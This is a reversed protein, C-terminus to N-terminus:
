GYMDTTTFSPSAGASLAKSNGFTQAMSNKWSLLQTLIADSAKEQSEPLGISHDFEEVIKLSVNELKSLGAAKPGFNKELAYFGVEEPGFLFMTQVGRQSLQTLASHAFNASVSVARAMQVVRAIANCFHRLRGRVIAAINYRGSCVSRWTHIRALRKLYHQWTRAVHISLESAAGESQELLPINVLLLMDIRCDTLSAHLAHFAGSCLGQVAFRRYGLSELRDIAARIDPSRAEFVRTLVTERGPPGLSDGLGAFDIRLSAIGAKALSQALHVASRGVGYHPDRGAGCLVVAIEAEGAQPRCLVGFLRNAPGFSVPTEILGERQLSVARPPRADPQFIPRPSVNRMAWNLVHSYDAPATEGELGHSLLADLGSFDTSWLNAGQGNWVSECTALPVSTSQACIAIHLGVPMKVARLDAEAISQVAQPSFTVDQLTFGDELRTTQGQQLRSEVWLQRIYSQGRIVPALLILGSVDERKEAALAALTAGVRLGCIILRKAGTEALLYDAAAQLSQQMALWQNGAAVTFEALDCSDGTGPYDFRLAPYGAAAFEDALVRLFRHSDLADRKLGSCILVATEGGWFIRPRHLWAFIGDIYLPQTAHSQRAEGNLEATGHM